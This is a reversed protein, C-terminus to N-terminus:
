DDSFISSKQLKQFAVAEFGGALNHSSDWKESSYTVTQFMVDLTKSISAAVYPDVGKALLHSICSANEHSANFFSIGLDPVAVVRANKGTYSWLVDLYLTGDPLQMLTKCANSGPMHWLETMFCLWDDAEYQCRYQIM